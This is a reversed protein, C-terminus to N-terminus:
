KKKEEVLSGYVQQLKRGIICWTFKKNVFDNGGHSIKKYYNEDRYLKYISNAINDYDFQSVIIANKKNVLSDAIAEGECLVIPKNFYLAELYVLGFTERISPLSFVDCIKMYEMATEYELQGLFL